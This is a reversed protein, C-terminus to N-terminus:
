FLTQQVTQESKHTSPIFNMYLSEYVDAHNNNGMIRHFSSNGSRIYEHCRYLNEPVAYTMDNTGVMGDFSLMWKCQINYLWDFFIDIDIRGFYMGKTCFYPPDCYVFDNEYPSVKNYEQHIFKVRKTRLLLSCEILIRQLTDPNIGPRLFHCSNNFDGKNNYRPMGNTTTRMVFLFDSPRHERNLRERIKEYYEKRHGLGYGKHVNLNYEKWCSRYENGIREPNDKIENWLAILDANIDSAIYHEIKLFNTQLLRFLVSCGGCFPEYYTHIVPPMRSIIEEAQSRKSGIWKIAPELCM